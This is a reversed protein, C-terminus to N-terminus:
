DVFESNDEEMDEAQQLLRNYEVEEWFGEAEDGEVWCFLRLMDKMSTFADSADIIFDALSQIDDCQIAICTLTSFGHIANVLTETYQVEEPTWLRIDILVCRLVGDGSRDHQVRPETFCTLLPGAGYRGGRVRINLYFSYNRSLNPAFEENLAMGSADLPEGWVVLELPESVDRAYEKAEESCITRMIHVLQLSDSISLLPHLGREKGSLMRRRARDHLLTITFVDDTCGRVSAQPTIHDCAFSPIFRSMSTSADPVEDWTIRHCYIDYARLPDLDRILNWVMDYDPLHIGELIIDVAISEPFSIPLARPSRHFLPHRITSGARTGARLSTSIHGTIHLHVRDLTHAGNARLTQIDYFWPYRDLQYFVVLTQLCDGISRIRTDPRSPRLFSKLSRLDDPSRLVVSHFMRGRTLNAWRVCTLASASLHQIEEKRSEHSAFDFERGHLELGLRQDHGIFSVITDFLEQPIRAASSLGSTPYSTMSISPTRHAM